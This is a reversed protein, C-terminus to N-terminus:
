RENMSERSHQLLPSLVYEIIRRAGTKIEVNVSMGPSLTTARGNVLITKDLLGVKVGYILGKKEDSIADKSVNSVKGALTGYKTYEFADIKVRVDQGEQVFGIDKNELFAEVELTAQKPVIQMLAQAAPVVGGITHVQLQQVTGDVPATLKLRENKVSAKKMEETFGAMLRNADALQDRANKRSESALGLVQNKVDRLQGELDVRIKEQELWAHQSVDRSKLLEEYDKARQTVLPLIQNIRSIENELRVLKAQYDLWQDKLQLAADSWRTTTVDQAVNLVPAKGSDLAILMAKARESQLLFAQRDSDAKNRESDNVNTDLEVLVDGARVSQGEQVHLARVSSIEVAALTKIYGGPIVRGQANVVIDIRGFVSWVLLVLLLGILIRAVWRGAPSVPQTQIAL